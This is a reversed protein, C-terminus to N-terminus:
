YRGSKPEILLDREPVGLDGWEKERKLRTVRPGRLRCREEQLIGPKM